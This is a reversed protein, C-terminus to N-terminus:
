ALSAVCATTCIAVCTACASTGTSIVPGFPTPLSTIASITWAFERTLLAFDQWYEPKKQCNLVQAIADVSAARQALLARVQDVHTDFRPM